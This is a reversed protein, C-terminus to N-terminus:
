EHRRGKRAASQARKSTCLDDVCDLCDWGDESRAYACRRVRAGYAERCYYAIGIRCSNKKVM